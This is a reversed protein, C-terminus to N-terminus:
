IWNSYNSIRWRYIYQMDSIGFLNHNPTSFQLRLLGGHRTPTLFVIFFSLSKSAMTSVHKVLMHFLILPWELVGFKLGIAWDTELNCTMWKMSMKNKKIFMELCAHPLFNKLKKSTVDIPLVYCIHLPSFTESFRSRTIESTHSNTCIRRKPAFTM